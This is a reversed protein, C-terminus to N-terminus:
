WLTNMYLIATGLQVKSLFPIPVKGKRHGPSIVRRALSSPHQGALDGEKALSTSMPKVIYEYLEVLM